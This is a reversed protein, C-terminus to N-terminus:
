LAEEMAPDSLAYWQQLLHDAVDHHTRIAASEPTGAGSLAARNGFKLQM